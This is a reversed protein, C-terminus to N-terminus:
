FVLFRVMETGSASLLCESVPINALTLPSGKCCPGHFMKVVVAGGPGEGDGKSGTAKRECKLEDLTKCGYTVSEALDQYRGAECHQCPLYADPADTGKSCTKCKVGALNIEDQYRGKPCDQCPATSTLYQKGTQCTKCGWVDAISKEQYTGPKCDSCSSKSNLPSKGKICTKCQVGVSGCKKCRETAYPGGTPFAEINQYRGKPCSKCPVAPDGAYQKGAPCNVCYQAVPQSPVTGAMCTKCKRGNEVASDGGKKSQDQYQGAPCKKCNEKGTEDQYRGYECTDCMRHKEGRSADAERRYMGAPCMYCLCTHSKSCKGPVIAISVNNNLYLKNAMVFCGAPYQVFKNDFNVTHFKPKSYGYVAFTAALCTGIHYQDVSDPNADPIGDNNRDFFGKWQDGIAVRGPWAGCREENRKSYACYASGPTSYTPICSYPAKGDISYTVLKGGGVDYSQGPVPPTCNVTSFISHRLPCISCEYSEAFSKSQYKGAPCDICPKVASKAFRGESCSSCIAGAMNNKDQYMGMPCTSCQHTTNVFRKGARCFKCEGRLPQTEHQYKGPECPECPMNADVYGRGILCKKCEWENAILNSQYQGLQCHKCGSTSLWNSIYKGQDCKLCIFDRVNISEKLVTSYVAVPPVYEDDEARVHQRERDAYINNWKHANSENFYRGTPCFSCVTSRSVFFRGPFCPKCVANPENDKIQIKGHVCISCDIDRAVFETGSPCNHCATSGLTVTYMGADCVKCLVGPKNTDPQYTGPLCKSCSTTINVFQTGAACFKCGWETSSSETQYKGEACAQCPQTSNQSSQGATCARCEAFNTDKAPQNFGSPCAMCEKERSIFYRGASCALCDEPGEAGAIHRYRGAECPLCAVVYTGNSHEPFPRPFGHSINWRKEPYHGSPCLNESFNCSSSNVKSANGLECNKCKVRPSQKDQYLGAACGDCSKVQSVFEKGPPCMRCESAGEMATYTGEPCDLCAAPFATNHYTGKPCSDENFYCGEQGSTSYQGSTCEICVANPTTSSDQYFGAPCSECDVVKEVFYKGIGCSKCKTQSAKSRYMGQTCDTCAGNASATDPFTGLPCTSITFNCTSASRVSARGTECEKCAEIGSQNYKDQYFGPNCSWCRAEKFSEMSQYMGPDCSECLCPLSETCNAAAFESETHGIETNLMGWQNSSKGFVCGSVKGTDKVTDFKKMEGPFAANIADKCKDEDSIPVMGTPMSGDTACNGTTVVEYKPLTAQSLRRTLLLEETRYNESSAVWAIKMLMITAQAIM